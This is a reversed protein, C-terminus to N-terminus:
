RPPPHFKSQQLIGKIPMLELMLSKQQQGHFFQLIQNIFMQKVMKTMTLSNAKVIQFAKLQLQYDKPNHDILQNRAKLDQLVLILLSRNLNKMFRVEKKPSPQQLFIPEMLQTQGIRKQSNIVGHVLHSMQKEQRVVLVSRSKEDMMLNQKVQFFSEQHKILVPLQITVLSKISHSIPYLNHMSMPRILISLVELAKDM